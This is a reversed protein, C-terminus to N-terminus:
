VISLLMTCHVYVYHFLYDEMKDQTARQDDKNLQNRLSINADRSCVALFLFPTLGAIYHFQQNREIMQIVMQLVILRQMTM